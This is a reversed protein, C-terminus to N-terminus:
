SAFDEPKISKLFQRFQGILVDPPPEDEEDESSDAALLIGESDMLDDSVFLPSGTRVARNIEATAELEWTSSNLLGTKSDIRSQVVLQAHMIFRRALLVTPV